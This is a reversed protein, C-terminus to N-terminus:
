GRNGKYGSLIQNAKQLLEAVGPELGGGSQQQQQQQQMMQPNQAQQANPQQQMKEPQQQQQNQQVQGFISEVINSWPTKHDKSLKDIASSFRKDHQAIAGAELPSRGSKVQQDIFQFLEPSYQQIINRDDKPAEQEEKRAFESKIFELGSKLSLGSKMGNDLYRGIAPAVKNIGKLALEEPIYQSLFPLIKSAAVGGLATTGISAVQRLGSKVEETRGKAKRIESQNAKEDPRLYNNM